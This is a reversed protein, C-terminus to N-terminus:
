PGGELRVIRLRRIGAATATDLLSVLAQTHARGSPLVIVQADPSAGAFAALADRLDASSLVRGRIHPRGAADLRILLPAAAAGESAVSASLPPSGGGRALPIMRLNLYTSTVMFFVLMIMLVDIMAVLSIPSSGSDAHKLRM